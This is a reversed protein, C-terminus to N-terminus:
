KREDDRKTRKRGAGLGVEIQNAGGDGVGFGDLIEDLEFTEPLTM